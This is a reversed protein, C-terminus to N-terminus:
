GPFRSGQIEIASQACPRLQSFSNGSQLVKLVSIWIIRRRDRAAAANEAAASSNAAQAGVGGAAGGGGGGAGMTVPGSSIDSRVRNVM